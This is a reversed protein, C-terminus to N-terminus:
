IAEMFDNELVDALLKGALKGHWVVKKEERLQQYNKRRLEDSIRGLEKEEKTLRKKIEKQWEKIFGLAAKFDENQNDGMTRKQRINGGPEVELTYYPTDPREKWRLFLLYSERRGIRDFYFDCTHICHRLSMGEKIIDEIGKPAVICYQEGQMEYKTLSECVEKVKPWKKELEEVQKKINKEELLLIVEAHAAKLDKPKYVMEESINMKAKQAMNLYDRWTGLLTNGREGTVREQKKLYHYIQLCSMYRNVFGLREHTIGAESFYLVMKEEFMTDEKKEMQLWKLHALGGKMAKLRALRAKDLQLLKHLKTEDEKLLERDYGARIMEGAMRYMGIKVLKEIATNHKECQLYRNINMMKVNRAMKVLGSYKLENKELSALNRTYIMSNDEYWTYSTIGKCWRHEANKYLDWRYYDTRDGRHLTRRTERLVYGPDTYTHNHAYSKYTSFARVVFGGPIKQVLQCHHWGSVLTSIKGDAKYMIKKRCEPCIGEKGHKPSTVPVMKECYSCYGERVGKRDYHYFIFHERIAEKQWWKEFGKPMEPVLAMDEDWPRTERARREELRKKDISQQWKSIGEYGGRDVKLGTQISKAGERNIWAEKEAEWMYNGGDNNYNLNEIRATRWYEEGKVWERTIYNENEPDIFIEFRPEKKGAIMDKPMFIAIKLYGKLNQCRLYSGYKRKYERVYGFTVREKYKGENEKAKKIMEPTANLTRLKRLEKKIM